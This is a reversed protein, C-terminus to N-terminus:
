ESKLIFSVRSITYYLSTRRRDYLSPLESLTSDSDPIQGKKYNRCHFAAKLSSSNLSSLIRISNFVYFIYLQSKLSFLAKLGRLVCACVGFCVRACVSVYVCVCRFMCACVDAGRLM